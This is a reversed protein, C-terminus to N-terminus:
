RRCAEEKRQFDMWAVLRDWDPWTMNAFYPPHHYNAEDHYLRIGPGQGAYQVEITLLLDTVIQLKSEM